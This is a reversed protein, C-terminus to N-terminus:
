SAGGSPTDLPLRVRVAVKSRTQTGGLLEVREGWRDLTASGEGTVALDAATVVIELSAPDAPTVLLDVPGRTAAALAAQVVRYATVAMVGRASPEHPARVTVALGAAAHRGALDELAATLGYREVTAVGLGSLTSRAVRLAHSLTERAEALPTTVADTGAARLALDVLYRSALLEQLIGDHLAAALAAREAEEIRLLAVVGPADLAAPSLSTREVVSV